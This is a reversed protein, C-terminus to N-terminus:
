KKGPGANLGQKKWLTQIEQFTAPETVSGEPHVRRVLDGHKNYISTIAPSDATLKTQMRFNGSGDPAPGWIDSRQSLQATRNAFNYFYYRYEVDATTDRPLLRGILWALPQSLYVDPVAWDYPERTNRVNDSKIVTMHPPPAGPIYPMRVGTEAESQEAEGQRITGRISWSEESQDWAMWYLAISDYYTNRDAVLRGQVRIMLGTKKESPDYNAEKKGPDLAGRKAELVELLSYGIEAAASGDSGAPKYIRYWQNTGILTKLVQPTMSQILARGVELRSKREAAIDAVSRLRITAYSAELLSRVSNLHEPLTQTSCVMYTDDGMPLVLWGLIVTQDEVSQSIYCMQGVSSGASFPENFLLRFDKKTAKYDSVLSDIQAAATSSKLSSVLQQILLSWTPSNRDDTVRIRLQGDLKEADVASKLPLNLTLGLADAEFPTPNLRSDINTPSNEATKASKSSNPPTQISSKAGFLLTIGM